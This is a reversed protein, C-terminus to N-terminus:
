ESYLRRYKECTKEFNFEEIISNYANNSLLSYNEKNINEIVSKFDDFIIFGNEQDKIVDNNGICNTVICLKKLYMAELLSIPLGEWLSTLIFVDNYNVLELTEERTKWGTVTINPSTLEDKLDGDGIWTFQIDPFSEAVKNFLIPNKQYGIRGSTCIKLNDFDVEKKNFDKVRKNLDEINIGNNICIANKSLKLAEKYEGESCGVIICRRFSSIKEILWYIIRKVKSSNQMLFSFGHPNYLIKCKRGNAAFRGIVGAKSSHLHIIDPNVEKIIKKVEFFAKCDNICSISRTFSKVEIFKVNSPFYDKFNDVTESRIGHAVIIEYDNATQNILDVLFTFVGSAFSEVVHLVMKKESM